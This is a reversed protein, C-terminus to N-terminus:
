NSCVALLLLFFFLSTFVSAETQTEKKPKEIELKKEVLFSGAKSFDLNFMYYVGKPLMVQIYSSFLERPCKGKETALLDKNAGALAGPLSIWSVWPPSM